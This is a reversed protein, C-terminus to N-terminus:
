ISERSFIYSLLVKTKKLIEQSNEQRMAGDYEILEQGDKFQGIGFKYNIEFSRSETLIKKLKVLYKINACQEM